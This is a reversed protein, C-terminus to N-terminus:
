IRLSNPSRTMTFIKQSRVQAKELYNKPVWDPDHNRHLFPPSPPNYNQNYLSDDETPPPPLPPSTINQKDKSWDVEQM